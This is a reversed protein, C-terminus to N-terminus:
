RMEWFPRLGGGVMFQRHVRGCTCHFIYVDPVGKAEDDASTYWASFDHGEPHRCCSLAQQNQELGEHMKAPIRIPGAMLVGPAAEEIPVRV